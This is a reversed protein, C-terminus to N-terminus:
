PRHYNALPLALWREPMKIKLQHYKGGRWVTLTIADDHRLRTLVAYQSSNRVRWDDVGVVVDAAQIGVALARRGLGQFTLGDKPTADLAHLALREPGRPFVERLLEWGETETKADNTRLGKRVLFTGLGESDDYRSQVRLYLEQAQDDRGRADLLHALTMMGRASGTAAAERAIEEARAGKGHAAYYRTLWEVGNSVAVSDRTGAIWQEYAAAAEVPQGDRLLLIALRDCRDVSFACLKRAIAIHEAVPMEILDILKLPAAVDYDLLPGFARRIAAATPKGTVAYWEASWQVWHDYPMAQAWVRAQAASPPRPCGPVLARPYLDFATGVPVTPTFWATFLPFLAPRQVYKPKEEMLNWAAATVLEPNSVALARGMALSQEYDKADTGVTRLIIPYLTLGGFRATVTKKLEERDDPLGLHRYHHNEGALSHGVHRQSFAAWTGWDLVSVSVTGARHVIPGPAPPENLATVLQDPAPTKGHIRAWVTTAEELERDLAEQAFHHGAEVSFETGLAIRQWEIILDKPSSDAFALFADTGLRAALARGHEVLELRTANPAPRTRWDGTNRLHLARLWAKDADSAAHPTIATVIGLADRQRGVLTMTVARALLGDFGEPAQQRLASSLALHAAMRSLAPRVDTFVGASERLAHAGTLLAAAEHVPASRMNRDLARSIRVNEGLLVDIRPEVLARRANLDTAPETLGSAPAAQLLSVALPLYTYSSWIHEDVRVQTQPGPGITVAFVPPAGAQGPLLKAKVPTAVAKPTQKFRVMELLATVVQQVIWEQETPQSGVAPKLSGLPQRTQAQAPGGSSAGLVVSLAVVVVARSM